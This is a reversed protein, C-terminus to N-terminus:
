LETENPFDIELSGNQPQIGNRPVVAFVYDQLAGAVITDYKFPRLLDTSIFTSPFIALGATSGVQGQDITVGALTQTTVTIDDEIPRISRPNRANSVTISVLEGAPCAQLGCPSQISIDAINGSDYTTYSCSLPMILGGPSPTACELEELPPQLTEDQLSIKVTAGIPLENTSIFDTTFGTSAGVIGPM